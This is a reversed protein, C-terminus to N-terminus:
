CYYKSSRRTCKDSYDELIYYLINCKKDPKSATIIKVYGILEHNKKNEIVWIPLDYECVNMASLIIAKTEVINKHQRSDTEYAIQPDSFWREYCIEVDELKPKRILLNKTELNHM